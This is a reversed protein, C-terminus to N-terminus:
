NGGACGLQEFVKLIKPFQMALWDIMEENMAWCDTGNSCGWLGSEALFAHIVEHRLTINIQHQKCATDEGKWSEISNMDAIVIKRGSPQCYGFRDRLDDDKDVSMDFYVKYKTGLVNITKVM